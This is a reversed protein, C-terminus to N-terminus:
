YFYFKVHHLGIPVTSSSHFNLTAPDSPLANRERLSALSERVTIRRYFDVDDDGNPVINETSIVPNEETPSVSENFNSESDM